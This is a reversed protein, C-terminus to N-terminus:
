QTQFTHSHPLQLKSRHCVIHIICWQALCFPSKSNLRVIHRLFIKSLFLKLIHRNCIWIDPFFPFKTKCRYWHCNQHNSMKLFSCKQHKGVTWNELPQTISFHAFCGFKCKLADKKALNIIIYLKLIRIENILKLSYETYSFRM